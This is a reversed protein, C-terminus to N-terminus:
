KAKPDQKDIHGLKTRYTAPDGLLGFLIELSLAAHYLNLGLHKMNALVAIMKPDITKAFDHIEKQVHL